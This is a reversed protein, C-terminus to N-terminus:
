GGGLQACVAAVDFEQPTCKGDLCLGSACDALTCPAGNPKLKTCVMTPHDCYTGLVCNERCAGECCPSGEPIRALCMRETSDCYGDRSCWPEARRCAGGVALTKQCAASDTDCYLDEYFDCNFHRPPAGQSYFRECPGDGEKGRVLVSCRANKNDFADGRCVVRGDASPACEQDRACAAGVAKNGPSWGFVQACVHLDPTDMIQCWLSPRAAGSRLEALCARAAAASFGSRRSLTERCRALDLPVQAQACCDVKTACYSEILEGKVPDADGATSASSGSGCGAVFILVGLAKRM